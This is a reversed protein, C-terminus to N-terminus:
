PLHRKQIIRQILHLSSIVFQKLPIILETHKCIHPIVNCRPLLHYPFCSFNKKTRANVGACALMPTHHSSASNMSCECSLMKSDTIPLSTKLQKTTMGIKISYLTDTTGLNSSIRRRQFYRKQQAFSVTRQSTVGYISM